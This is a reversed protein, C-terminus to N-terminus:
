ACQTPSLGVIRTTTRKRRGCTATLPPKKDPRRRPSDGSCWPSFSRSVPSLTSAHVRPHVRPSQKTNERGCGGTVVSLPPLPRSLVLEFPALGLSSHVKCKHSFTIASTLEDWDNQRESIYGRLANVITRNYREVQGNAQPHYATTFVKAIGLERCVALFFKSAFQAGHRDARIAPTWLRLGLTRLVGECRRTCFNCPAPCHSDVQLVSGYHNAPVQKRTRDQAASGFYRSLRIGPTGSGPVTQPFQDAEARPHSEERLGRVAQCDRSCRRGYKV